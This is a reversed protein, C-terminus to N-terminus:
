KLVTNDVNQNLCSYETIHGRITYGYEDMSLVSCFSPKEKTSTDFVTELWLSQRNPLSHIAQRWLRMFIKNVTRPDFKRRVYRFILKLWEAM